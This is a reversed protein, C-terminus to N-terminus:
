EFKFLLKLKIMDKNTKIDDEDESEEQEVEEEQKNLAELDFAAVGTKKEEQEEKKDSAKPLVVQPYDTYMVHEKHYKSQTLLREIIKIAKLMSGADYTTDGEVFEMKSPITNDPLGSTKSHGGLQQQTTSSSSLKDSLGSKTDSEKIISKSTGEGEKTNTKNRSSKQSTGSKGPVKTVQSTVQSYISIHSALEESDILARPDQLKDHMIDEISKEYIKVMKAGEDERIKRNEEEIEYNNVQVKVDKLMFIKDPAIDKPKQTLNLTQVGRINYSDAGVKYQLLKKYNETPLLAEEDNPDTIIMSPMHFLTLTETEELEIDVLKNKEEESLGKKEDKKKKKAEQRRNEEDESGDLMSSLMSQSTQMGTGSEIGSKIKQETQQKSEEEQRRQLTVSESEMMRTDGITGETKGEERVGGQVRRKIL